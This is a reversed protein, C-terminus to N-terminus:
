ARGSATRRLISRMEEPSLAAPSLPAATAAANLRARLRRLLLLTDQRRRDVRGRGLWRRLRDLQSAPVHDRAAVLLPPWIDAVRLSQAMTVLKDRAECSVVGQRAARGLTARVAVMTETHRDPDVAGNSVPRHRYAEYLAGMGEMGADTLGAACVAGTGGAGLVSVGAALAWRLEKRWLAPIGHPHGDILAIVTAGDRVASLVDGCRAPPRFEAAVIRRARALSLSAGLFVVAKM